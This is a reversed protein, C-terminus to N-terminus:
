YGKAARWYVLMFGLVILTVYAERRGVTGPGFATRLGVSASGGYVSPATEGVVGHGEIDAITFDARAM